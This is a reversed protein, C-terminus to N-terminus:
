IKHTTSPGRKSRLDKNRFQCCATFSARSRRAWFTKSMFDDTQPASPQRKVTWYDTKRKWIGESLFQLTQLLWLQQYPDAVQLYIYIVRDHM